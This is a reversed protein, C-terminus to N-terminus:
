HINNEEYEQNGRVFINKIANFITSLKSKKVIAFDTNGTLKEYKQDIEAMKSIYFDNFFNYKESTGILNSFSYLQKRYEEIENATNVEKIRADFYSTLILNQTTFFTKKIQERYNNIADTTHKFRYYSM